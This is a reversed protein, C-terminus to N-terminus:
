IVVVVGGGYEKTGFKVGVGVAVLESLESLEVIEVRSFGKTLAAIPNAHPRAPISRPKNMRLRMM